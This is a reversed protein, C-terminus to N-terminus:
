QNSSPLRVEFRSGRGLGESFARIQGGHGEVIGKCIYLGLGTGTRNTKRDEHIQGFPTFLNRLGEVPMGQGSDEVTICATRGEDVIGVQVNGGPPTFKIANDILNTLVQGVRIPDAELTLEEPGDYQLNVDKDKASFRSAKMVENLISVLDMPAPIIKLQGSDSKSVDLIDSVLHTLRNLSTQLSTVSEKQEGSLKGMFGSELMDLEMKMPTLPTKLEHSMTGIMQSKVQSLDELREMDLEIERLQYRTLFWIALGGAGLALLLIYYLAGELQLPLSVMLRIRQFFVLWLVLLVMFSIALINGRSLAEATARSSTGANAKFRSTERVAAYAAVCPFLIAVGAMPWLFVTTELVTNQVVIFEYTGPETVYQAPLLLEVGADGRTVSLEEGLVSGDPLRVELGLYSPPMVIKLQVDGFSFLGAPAVVRITSEELKTDDVVRSGTVRDTAELHIGEHIVQARSVSAIYSTATAATPLLNLTNATHEEFHWGIVHETTGPALHFVLGYPKLETDRANAEIYASQTKLAPPSGAGYLRVEQAFDPEQDLPGVRHISRDAEFSVRLRETGPPSTLSFRAEACGAGDDSESYKFWGGADSTTFHNAGCGLLPANANKTPVFETLESPVLTTVVEAQATLVNQGSVLPVIFLLILWWRLM